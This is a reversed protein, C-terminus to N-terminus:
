VVTGYEFPKRSTLCKFQQKIVTCNLVNGTMLQLSINIKSIVHMKNILSRNLLESFM